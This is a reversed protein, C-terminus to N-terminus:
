ILINFYECSQINWLLRKQWYKFTYIEIIIRFYLSIRVLLICLYNCVLFYIGIEIIRFLNRIQYKVASLSTLLEFRTWESASLSRTRKHARQIVDGKHETWEDTQKVLGHLDRRLDGRRSCLRSWRRGRDALDRSATRRGLHRWSRDMLVLSWRRTSRLAERWPPSITLTAAMRRWSAM